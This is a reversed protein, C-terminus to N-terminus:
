FKGKVFLTGGGQAMDVGFHVNRKNRLEAREQRYELYMLLGSTLVAAGGAGFCINAILANKQAKDRLMWAESQSDTTRADNTAQSSIVGFAIGAGFAAIGAGAVSWVHIYRKTFLNKGSWNDQERLVPDEVEFKVAEPKAEQSAAATKKKNGLPDEKDQAEIVSAAYEAEIRSFKAPTRPADVAPADSSAVRVGGQRAKQVLRLAHGIATRGGRGVDFSNNQLVEGTEGSIVRLDVHYAADQHEVHGTLLYKARLAGSVTKICQSEQLCIRLKAARRANMVLVQIQRNRKFSKAIGLTTQHAIKSAGKGAASLPILAIRESAESASPAAILSLLFFIPATRLM